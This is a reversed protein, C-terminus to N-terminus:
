NSRGFSSTSDTHSSHCSACLSRGFEPANPNDGDAILQKRTRPHHDAVTAKGGCLVCTWNDRDLVPKRFQDRDLRDYGRASAAM